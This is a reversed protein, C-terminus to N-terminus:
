SYHSHGLVTFNLGSLWVTLWFSNHYNGDKDISCITEEKAQILSQINNRQKRLDRGEDISCVSPCMLPWIQHLQLDDLHLGSHQSHWWTLDEQSFGWIIGPDSHKETKIIERCSKSRRPSFIIDQPISWERLSQLILESLICFAM